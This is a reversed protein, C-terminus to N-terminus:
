KLAEDLQQYLAEQESPRRANAQIIEGKRNFLVFTPYRNIAGGATAIEQWIAAIEERNMRYHQGEIDHYRLYEKWTSEKIADDMDLYVFVIDKQQYRKKLVPEFAMETKCPGCWTGWIDLYVVKGAYPKVLDALTRISGPKLFVIQPNIGNRQLITRIRQTEARAPSLYASNPFYHQLTDLLIFATNFSGGDAADLIKNFLIKDQVSAPLHHHAFLWSLMQREGYHKVLSDIVSFPTQLYEVIKQRPDGAGKRMQLSIHYAGQREMIMNAYFGTALTISDPLPQWTMVSNLLSDRPPNKAWAMQNNTFDNLYCQYAYRTESMLLRQLHAPIGSASIANSGAQLEKEIPAMVKTQWEAASVKAFQDQMFFPASHFVGQRLFQNEPSAKGKIHATDIYLDRGPSLLLRWQQRGTKLVAFVPRTLQLKQRFFGDPSTKIQISPISYFQDAYLLVLQLSDSVPLKGSLTCVQAQAYLTLFLFALQLFFTKM